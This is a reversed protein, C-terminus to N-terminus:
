NMKLNETDCGTKTHGCRGAHGLPRDVLVAVAGLGGLGVVMMEVAAVGEVGGFAVAETRTVRAIGEGLRMARTANGGNSTCHAFQVM